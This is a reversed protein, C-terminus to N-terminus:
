MICNPKIGNLSESNGCYSRFSKWVLETSSQEAFICPRNAGDGHGGSNVSGDFGHFGGCTITSENRLERESLTDLSVGLQWNVVELSVADECPV